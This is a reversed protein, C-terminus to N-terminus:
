ERFIVPLYIQWDYVYEDAGLDPAGIRWDGDIDTAAGVNVGRDKAASNISIHYDWGGPSVFAPDGIYEHSVTVTRVM